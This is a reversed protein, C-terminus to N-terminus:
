WWDARKRLAATPAAAEPVIQGTNM